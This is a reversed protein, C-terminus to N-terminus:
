VQQLASNLAQLSEPSADFRQCHAAEQEWAAASEM